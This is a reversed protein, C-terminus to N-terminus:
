WWKRLFHVAVVGGGVWFATTALLAFAILGWMFCGTAQFTAQRPPDDRPFRM